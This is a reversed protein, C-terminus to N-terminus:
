CCAQTADWSCTTLRREPAIKGTEAVALATVNYRMPFALGEHSSPESALRRGKSMEHM